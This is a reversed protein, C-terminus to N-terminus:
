LFRGKLPDIVRFAIYLAVVGAFLANTIVAARRACWGRVVRGVTLATVAAWASLAWVVKLTHGTRYELAYSAALGTGVTLALWGAVVAVHNVRDLTELPPFFRFIAGFRRSKLERREVLYMTAAGAATAFAAIGLFSLAIHSTLWVGRIGDPEPGAVMGAVNAFVTLLAALPAAFLTLSVERALAEVVLLTIAVLAGAFSLAPGLGTLPPQGHVHVFDALALVHMAIGASLLWVVGRVPAPIARAFPVAALGAAAIYLTIAICHAIFMMDSRLRSLSLWIRVHAGRLWAALVVVPFAREHV